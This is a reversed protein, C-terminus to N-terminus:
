HYKQSQRLLQTREKILRGVQQEMELLDMQEMLVKLMGNKNLKSFGKIKLWKFLKRLEPRWLLRLLEKKSQHPNQEAGRILELELKDLNGRILIIGWHDGVLPKVKEVYKATTVIFCYSFIKNYSEIQAPLRALSDVDSKIEFGYMFDDIWVVDARCVGDCINFEHLFIGSKASFFQILKERLHSDKKM